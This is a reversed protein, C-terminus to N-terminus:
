GKLVQELFMLGPLSETARNSQGRRCRTPGISLPFACVEDFVTPRLKGSGRFSSSSLKRKSIRSWSAYSYMGPISPSCSALTGLPPPFSERPIEPFVGLEVPCHGLERQSIGILCLVVV